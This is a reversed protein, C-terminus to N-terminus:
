KVFYVIPKDTVIVELCDIALSLVIKYRNTEEATELRHGMVGNRAMFGNQPLLSPGYFQLM